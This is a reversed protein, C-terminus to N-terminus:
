AERCSYGIVIGLFTNQYVKYSRGQSQFYKADELANFASQAVSIFFNGLFGCFSGVLGFLLPGVVSPGSVLAGVACLFETGTWVGGTVLWGLAESALWNVGANDSAAFTGYHYARGGDIYSMEDSDLEVYHSPMVLNSAKNLVAANTM